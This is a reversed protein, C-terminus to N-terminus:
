TSIKEITGSNADIRVKDGTKILDLIKDDEVYVLPINTLLAGFVVPPDIKTNVMALPANGRKSLYYLISSSGVSGRGSPFILIKGAISCGELEHGKRVIIGNQPDVDGVFSIGEKSVLAIGEVVGKVLGKGKFILSQTM